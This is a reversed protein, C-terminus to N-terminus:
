ILITILSPQSYLLLGALLKAFEKNLIDNQGPQIKNSPFNNLDM